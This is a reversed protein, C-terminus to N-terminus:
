MPVQKEGVADVCTAVPVAGNVPVNRGSSGNVRKFPHVAFPVQDRNTLSSVPPSTPVKLSQVIVNLLLRGDNVQVGVVAM